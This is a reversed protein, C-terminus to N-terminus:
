CCTITNTDLKYNVSHSKSTETIRRNIYTFVSLINNDFSGVWLIQNTFDYSLNRPTTIGPSQKTLLHSLFQGDKDLMHISNTIIDCVLIHSLSDTCVGWPELDSGSLPGTYKICTEEDENYDESIDFNTGSYSFRHKGWRDTVIVASNDFDSVVVDGNNNECIDIPFSFLDREYSNHFKKILQGNKNYREVQGYYTHYDTGQEKVASCLGILFDGTKASCYMCKPLWTSNPKKIFTTKENSNKSLKMIDYDIDLFFLEGESNVTHVCKTWGEDLVDTVCRLGEGTSTDILMTIHQNTVWVCEGTVCSIHDCSTIYKLEVSKQLIPTSMPKLLEEIRVRRPGKYTINIKSLQKVTQSMNFIRPLTFKIQETLKPTYEKKPFPITKIIRIFMVPRNSCQEYVHEFSLLTSIYSKMKERQTSLKSNLFYDSASMVQFLSSDLMDKIKQVEMEVAFKVQDVKKLCYKFDNNVYDQMIRAEYLTKSRLYGILDNSQKQKQKYATNINQKTHKQHEKCHFCMVTECQECFM